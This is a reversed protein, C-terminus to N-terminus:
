VLVRRAWDTKRIPVVSSNAYRLYDGEDYKASAIQEIRSRHEELAALYGAPTRRLSRDIDELLRRHVDIRVIREGDLMPFSLEEFADVASHTTSTLPM